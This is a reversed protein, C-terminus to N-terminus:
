KWSGTFFKGFTCNGSTVTVTVRGPAAGASISLWIVRGISLATVPMELLISLSVLSVGIVMTLGISLATDITRQINLKVIIRRLAVPVLVAKLALTLLATLYLHPSHQMYGQVAAAAALALAQFAFVHLLAGLRRQYLLAFSMLLVVAGLLHAADYTFGAM